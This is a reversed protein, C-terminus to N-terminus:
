FKRTFYQNQTKQKKKLKNRANRFNIWNEKSPINHPLFRYKERQKQLEIIDLQKMWPAPPITSKTGKLPAHRYICDLILKNLMALQDDPSHFSYITSFPLTSFDTYYKKTNFNKTNRIYKYRTQFSATPIKIIAYPADHDSVTPCPFVDTWLVKETELNSVIHYITKVGQRTPKKVHQKLNYTDLVEKYTELATSPKNYDINTDWTSIISKNWTTAIASLISDLKQIWIQKEKDEPRPQYFVGVLKQKQEERSVRDLYTRHNRRTQKLRATGQIQNYSQHVNRCWRKKLSDTIYGKTWNM